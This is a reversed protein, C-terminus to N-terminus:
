SNNPLRKVSKIFLPFAANKAYTAFINLILHRSIQVNSNSISASTYPFM